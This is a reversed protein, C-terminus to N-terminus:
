GSIKRFFHSEGGNYKLFQSSLESVSFVKVEAPLVCFSPVSLIIMRSSLSVFLKYTSLEELTM